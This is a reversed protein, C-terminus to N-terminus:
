QVIRKKIKFIFCNCWDKSTILNGAQNALECIAVAHVPMTASWSKQKEKKNEAM